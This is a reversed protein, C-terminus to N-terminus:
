FREENDPTPSNIERRATSAPAIASVVATEALHQESVPIPDTNVVRVEQPTDTHPKEMYIEKTETHIVVPKDQVPFDQMQKWQRVKVLADILFGPMPVGLKALKELLSIAENTIYFVCVLNVAPIEPSAKNLMAVLLLVVWIGAKRTMGKASVSSSITKTRFAALVGALIDLLMVVMLVAVLPPKEVWELFLNLWPAVNTIEQPLHLHM